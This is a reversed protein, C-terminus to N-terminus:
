NGSRQLLAELAQCLTHETVDINFRRARSRLVPTDRRQQMLECLKSKFQEWDDSPFIYGDSGSEIVDPACGVKNSLLLPRGSAIAETAALGWTEDYLSPLTFIDGLRYVIPMRSQNQFPLVRYAAPTEAALRCVQNELEGSGVMVLVLNPMNVEGVAQMLEVPQKKREFKGAYLLVKASEAIGLEKRWRRAQIELADNPEAFRDVEISHPCYFLKSDPVGFARYYNYNHKGVYLFGRVHSYIWSLLFHKVEWRLGHRKENLLHSDGRFLVPVRLHKFRKIANLHSAYAYGTIHVADPRWDIVRRVLDPNQLGWFHHTGPHRSRNSVLEYEYGETLPIDWSFARNFGPDHQSASGDHWSFFVKIEVDTRDALRRYLPVYYQIPHSVVFALRTPKSRM